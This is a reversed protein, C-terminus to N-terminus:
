DICDPKPSNGHLVFHTPPRTLGTPKQVFLFVIVFVTRVHRYLQVNLKGFLLVLLQMPVFRHHMIELVWLLSIWYKWTWDHETITPYFIVISNSDKKMIRFLLCVNNACWSYINATWMTTVIFHVPFKYSNYKKVNTVCCVHKKRTPVWTIYRPIINGKGSSLYYRYVIKSAPVWTM